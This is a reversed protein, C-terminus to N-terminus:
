LPGDGKLKNKLKKLARHYKSLVTALPMELLAAIERHKLGTVAHLLVVQREQDELGALATQLLERDEPTVSPSDAPIAEWEEESLEAQRAGQRLKMRALNRVITLLWAMPSGQPRYQVAGEWVRVFADQTVDQADHANKLYSLALAYVAGRTRRYLEELAQQEGGAIRLLLEELEAPDRDQEQKMTQVMLGVTGVLM